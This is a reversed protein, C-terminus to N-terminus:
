NKSLINHKKNGTYVFAVLKVMTNVTNGVLATQVAHTSAQKASSSPRLWTPLRFSYDRVGFSKEVRTSRHNVFRLKTFSTKPCYM